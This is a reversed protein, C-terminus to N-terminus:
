LLLLLVVVMMVVICVSIGNGSGVQTPWGTVGM